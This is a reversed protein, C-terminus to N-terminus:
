VLLRVTMVASDSTSFERSLESPSRSPSTFRPVRLAAGPRRRRRGRALALPWAAASRLSAPQQALSRLSRPVAVRSAGWRVPCRQRCVSRRIGAIMRPESHPPRGPRRSAQSATPRQRPDYWSKLKKARRAAAPPSRRSRRSRHGECARRRPRRRRRDGGRAAIGRQCPRRSGEQRSTTNRPVASERYRRSPKTTTAASIDMLNLGDVRQGAAAVGGACRCGSSGPCSLADTWLQRWTREGRATSRGAHPEPQPWACCDTRAPQAHAPRRAPASLVARSRGCHGACRM